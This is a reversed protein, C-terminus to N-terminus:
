SYIKTIEFLQIDYTKARACGDGFFFISRTLVTSLCLTGFGSIKYKRKSRFNIVM